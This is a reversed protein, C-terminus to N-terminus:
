YRGGRGPVAPSPSRLNGQYQRTQMQPAPSNQPRMRCKSQVHGKFGCRYCTLENSHPFRYCNTVTHGRRNCRNCWDANGGRPVFTRQPSFASGRNIRAMSQTLTEIQKGQTRLAGVVDGLVESVGSVPTHIANVSNNAQKMNEISEALRAKSEAADLNQPQQGIVFARINPLLGRIMISKTEDETKNLQNCKVRIDAIYTEVKENKGQVRTLLSQEKVWNLNNANIFKNRFQQETNVWNNRNELALGRYWIEAPGDLLLQFAELKRQGQLNSIQCYSEFRQLWRRPDQDSMGTFTQPRFGVMEIHPANNIARAMNEQRLNQAQAQEDLHERLGALDRQLQEMQAEAM